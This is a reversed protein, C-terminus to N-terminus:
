KGYSIHNVKESSPEAIQRKNFFMTGERIGDDDEFRGVSGKNRDNVSQVRDPVLPTRYQYSEQQSLDPKAQVTNYRDTDEAYGVRDTSYRDRADSYRNIDETYQTNSNKVKDTSYKDKSHHYRERDNSYNNKDNSLKDFGDGKQSFRERDQSYRDRDQSYRDQDQSFRDRDQNYRDRNGSYAGKDESYRDKEQSYRDRDQPYRNKNQQYRNVLTSSKDKVSFFDDYGDQQSFYQCIDIYFLFYQILNM